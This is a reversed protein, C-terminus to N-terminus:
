AERPRSWTVTIIIIRAGGEKTTQKRVSFRETAPKCFIKVYSENKRNQRGTKGISGSGRDNEMSGCWSWKERAEEKGTGVSAEDESELRIELKWRGSSTKCQGDQRCAM